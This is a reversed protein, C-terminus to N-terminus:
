LFIAMDAPVHRLSFLIICFMDWNCSVTGGSCEAVCRGARQWYPLTSTAENTPGDSLIPMPISCKHLLVSMQIFKRLYETRVDCLVCDQMLFIIRNINGTFYGISLLVFSVFLCMTPGFHLFGYLGRLQYISNGRSNSREIWYLSNTHQRFSSPRLQM